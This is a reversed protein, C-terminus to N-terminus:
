VSQTLINEGPELYQKVSIKVYCYIVLSYNATAHPYKNM